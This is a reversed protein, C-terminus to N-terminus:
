PAQLNWQQNNGGGYTWLHVLASPSTSVGAVDLCSGTAHVPTIRYYGGSTATFTFKQMNGGWYDWLQVKTGNATSGNNVDIARGSAVGIISYQNNGRHTVTWRQHNGGFYTYQVIQSGNATGAGQVELALGSHRANIRYVGDSISGGGGATPAAWTYTPWWAFAAPAGEATGLTSNAPTQTALNVLNDNLFGILYSVNGQNDIAAKAANGFGATTGNFLDDYGGPANPFWMMETILMPKADAAPKYNSNWLNQVATQNNHVGGYAPYLHAAYAVNTGTVPYQAFGQSEGQWGLSPVWVVNDAGTNRIANVVPQMFNRLAQWYPASGFGWNNAGFGTEISVPENCIEFMVNDASKIGPANAVAQWFTILNQQYQQTMNKSADGGPFAVSPNGCIVVYLGRTRCHNIYPVLLNNIWGNFQAPNTLQGAANWGPAFNEPSSGDGIIRVFSCYWGHNRGYKASTDSMVTAADRLFNLAPAVNATNTYDTPNAYRNGEGNFWSAQPQFWGHLLVSKGSPDQLFRGNVTLKPTPMGQYAQAAPGTLGAVVLGAALILTRAGSLRAGPSLRRPRPAITQPLM